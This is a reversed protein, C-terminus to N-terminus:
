YDADFIDLLTDDSFLALLAFLTITAFAADYRLPTHSTVHAHEAFILAHRWQHDSMLLM